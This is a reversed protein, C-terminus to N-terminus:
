FFGLFGLGLLEFPNCGIAFVIQDEYLSQYAFEMTIARYLGVKLGIAIGPEPEGFRWGMLCKGVVTLSVVSYRGIECGASGYPYSFQEEIGTHNIGVFPRFMLYAQERKPESLSLNVGMELNILGGKDGNQWVRGASLSPALPVSGAFALTFSTIILTIHYYLKM